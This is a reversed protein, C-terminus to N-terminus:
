IKKKTLLDFQEGYIIGRIDIGRRRAEEQFEPDSDVFVPFLLHLLEHRILMRLYRDTFDPYLVWNRAQIRILAFGVFLWDAEVDGARDTKDIFDITIVVKDEVKTFETALLEELIQVCDKQRQQWFEVSRQDVIKKEEKM